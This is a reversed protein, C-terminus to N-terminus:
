EVLESLMREVHRKLKVPPKDMLVFVGEANMRAYSKWGNSTRWPMTVNELALGACEEGLGLQGCTWICKEQTMGIRQVCEFAFYESAQEDMVKKPNLYPNRPPPLGAPKMNEHAYRYFGRMLQIARDIVESKEVLLDPEMGARQAIVEYDTVGDMVAKLVRDAQVSKMFNMRIM